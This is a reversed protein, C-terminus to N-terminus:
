CLLSGNSGIYIGFCVINSSLKRLSISLIHKASVRIFLTTYSQLSGLGNVFTVDRFISVPYRGKSEQVPLTVM